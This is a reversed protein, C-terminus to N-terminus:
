LWKGLEEILMVFGLEFVFGKVIWFAQKQDNM